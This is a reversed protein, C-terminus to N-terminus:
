IKMVSIKLKLLYISFRKLRIPLIIYAILTTGSYKLIPLSPKLAAFRKVTENSYIHGTPNSYLPVCWIGKIADDASILKEIMDMDPGTENMPINIMEIGFNECIAFHRDYGPVPCLFKVKELKHWPTCNNIGNTFAISILDYMISLSSNGLIIIEDEAVGIMKSFLEKAEPIGDLLGYNRYDDGNKGICDIQGNLIDLMEMSLDLQEPSPKGRAMNLSLNQAKFKNYEDDWQSKMVSLENKSMERIGM